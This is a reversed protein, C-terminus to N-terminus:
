GIVWQIKQKFHIYQKFFIIKYLEKQVTSIHVQM